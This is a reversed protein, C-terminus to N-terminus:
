DKEAAAARKYLAIASIAGFLLLGLAVLLFGRNNQGSIFAALGALLAPLLLAAIAWWIKQWEVPKQGGIAGTQGNVLVQFSREQYRYSMLYVPLLIFRWVEDEFDATMAFNRVHRSRISQRCEVKVQERMRNKGEGWATELPIDYVQAQWGALYDPTYDVLAELHFPWIRALLSQRVHLSGMVPLDRYTASYQGTEARWEIQTRNRWTKTTRDFYRRKHEYGVEAQWHVVIRAGFTWFPLYIGAFPQSAALASLTKPHYWGQGLWRQARQQCEAPPVQFPILYRPRLHDGPAQRLNVQNSACFPCTATLANEALELEAGCAQCHLQRRAIGWGSQSQAINELTFEAVAAARGVAQVQLPVQYGCHECAVGSVTVDYHTPAGCQPCHYITPAAIADIKPIPAYVTIGEVTSPVAQYGSPPLFTTPPLTM